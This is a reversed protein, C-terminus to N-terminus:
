GRDSIGKGLQLRLREQIAVWRLRLMVVTFQFKQKTGHLRKDTWIRFFSRFPPKLFLILDKLADLNSTSSKRMLDYKGGTIRISRKRLDEWSGRAPHNVCADDAYVQQYGKAFVRQGWQLDGGSRLNEDFLGVGDLIKKFTFLNATVGFKKDKLFEEQPFSMALSEYLEFPNPDSPNKVFFDIRGAVLGINPKSLLAAIGREIWNPAPICDADTFAIVEGKSISIGKNRAVYSGPRSEHTLSAQSFQIVVSKVDDQSNNDVVIIEYHEKPYTQQDLAKLCINLKESDNFVPIVISVFPNLLQSM